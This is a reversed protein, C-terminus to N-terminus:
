GAGGPLSHNYLCGGLEVIPLRDGCHGEGGGNLIETIRYACVEGPSEISDALSRRLSEKPMSSPPTGADSHSAAFRRSIASRTVATSGFDESHIFTINLQKTHDESRHLKGHCAHQFVATSDPFRLTNLDWSSLNGIRIM